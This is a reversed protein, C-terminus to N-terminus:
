PFNNFILTIASISLPFPDVAGSPSAGAPGTRRGKSPLRRAHRARTKKCLTVDQIESKRISKRFRNHNM